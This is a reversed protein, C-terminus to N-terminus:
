RFDIGHEYIFGIGYYWWTHDWEDLGFFFEQYDYYLRM